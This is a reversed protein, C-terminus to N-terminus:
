AADKLETHRGPAWAACLERVREGCGGCGTTVRTATALAPVTRAGAQWAQRLATETVSNCLCVLARAEPEAADSASRPPWGLLLGVLDYPLQQSLRYSRAIPAIAGPLGFLVAGVVREGRLALRAYRREKPDTLTVLRTDPGDFGAPTGIHCVDAARIRLRLVPPAARYTGGRGTLIRALTDAQELAAAPGETARREHEVGPGIAHVHPDSSRLQADVVVGSGTLLRAAIALQLDPMLSPCLVLTDAPLVTGDDLHLRGPTRRMATRGGLVTVGARELREALWAACTQGLREELPHPRECVLTTRTGRAALASAIEVAQPGGGLVVASEGSIREHDAATRPVVVGPGLRGDPATIGPLRPLLPRAELALVLTDYPFVTEAEGVLARVRRQARDIAVVRTDTRVDLGPPPPLQLDAPTLLADLFTQHHTAGPETGLLTVPGEHGHHRLRDAFRHATPGNGLVLVRNM